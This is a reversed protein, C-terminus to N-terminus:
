AASMLTLFGPVRLLRSLPVGESRPGRSPEALGLIAFFLILGPIGIVYFV